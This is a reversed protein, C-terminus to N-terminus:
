EKDSKESRFNKVHDRFALIDGKSFSDKLGNFIDFVVDEMDDTFRNYVEPTLIGKYNEDLSKTMKDTHNVYLNLDYKKDHTLLGIFCQSQSRIARALVAFMLTERSVYMLDKEEMEKIKATAKRELDHLLVDGELNEDPVIIYDAGRGNTIIVKDEVVKGDETIMFRVKWGAKRSAYKRLLNTM